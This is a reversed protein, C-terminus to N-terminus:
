MEFSRGELIEKAFSRVKESPDNEMAWEISELIAVDEGIKVNMGKLIEMRIAEEPETTLLRDVAGVVGSVPRFPITHVAAKRVSFEKDSMAAILATDAASGTMFKLAGTAVARLTVNAHALYPTIAVLVRADGTNGLAELYLRREEDSSASALGDMLMQVADATDGSPEANMTRVVNGAALTATNAVDEDSSGMAKKLAGASEQTPHKTLSLAIAANVRRDGAEERELLNALEHQAEKTGANGLSAILRKKSNLDGKGHLIEDAAKKAEGPDVRFLAAMRAQAQNRAKPDAANLDAAIDAFSRGGVMNLDAQKMSLAMAAADSAADSELDPAFPGIWEPRSEIGSLSAKTQIKGVVETDQVTVELSEEEAVTRPWGSADLGFVARSKVVYQTDKRIAILGTPGRMRMYQTKAKEVTLEDVARYAADYQGSVDAEAVHWTAMPAPPAVMQMSNVIGKVLIRAQAPVEKPFLFGKIEGTPLASLYFTRSAWKAGDEAIKPSAEVRTARVDARLHVENPEKGIVTLSLKGAIEFSVHQEVQSKGRIATSRTTDFDYVFSDGENWRRSPLAPAKEQRAQLAASSSLAESSRESGPHALRFAGFGLALAAIAAAAAHKRTLAKM